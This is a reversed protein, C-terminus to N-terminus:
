AQKKCVVLLADIHHAEGVSDEFTYTYPRIAPANGAYLARIEAESVYYHPINEEGPVNNIFTDKEIETGIGYLSDAKSVYDVYVLGGSRTVRLMEKAHARMDAHTGHGSTWLCFVADFAGDGFPIDRMDHCATEIALGLECAKQRTAAVGKKSIDTATVRFGERALFVSHRGMGCGLDLVTHIGESRFLKAAMVATPLVHSQVEGQSKYIEDWALEWAM